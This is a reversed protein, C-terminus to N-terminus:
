PLLQEIAQAFTGLSQAGTIQQADVLEGNRVRGVFFSPTGGVGLHQGYALDEDIRKAVTADDLCRSFVEADLKLERALEQYLPLSLRQHNDFLRRHMKWYARQRGACNAAIAAGRAQAHFSLPFDRVHYQVKGTDIYKEKLKALTQSNHRFCFPCQYDSFEVIGVKAKTNGLVRSNDLRVKVSAPPTTPAAPAVVSNRRFEGLTQRMISMEVKLTNLEKRIEVIEQRTSPASVCAVLM